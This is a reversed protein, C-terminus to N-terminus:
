AEKNMTGASANPWWTSCAAVERLTEILLQKEGLVWILPRQNGSGHAGRLTITVPFKKEVYM